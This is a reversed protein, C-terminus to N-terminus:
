VEIVAADRARERLDERAAIARLAASSAFGFLKNWLLGTQGYRTEAVTRAIAPRRSSARTWVSIPRLRLVSREINVTSFISALMFTM